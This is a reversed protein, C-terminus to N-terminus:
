CPPGAIRSFLVLVSCVACWNAVVAWTRWVPCLLCHGRDGLGDTSWLRHLYRVNRLCPHCTLSISIRAISHGSPDVLRVVKGVCGNQASPQKRTPFEHRLM